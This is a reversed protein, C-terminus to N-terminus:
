NYKWEIIKNSSDLMVTFVTQTTSHNKIILKRVGDGDVSTTATYTTALSSDLLFDENTNANVFSLGVQDLVLKQELSSFQKDSSDKSILALSVLLTCLAFVALMLLLALEIAVGKKLRNLKNSRKKIM